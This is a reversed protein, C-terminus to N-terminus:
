SSKVVNAIAEELELVYEKAIAYASILEDKIDIRLTMRMNVNGHKYIFDRRIVRDKTLIQKNKSSM